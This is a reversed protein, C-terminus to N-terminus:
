QSILIKDPALPGGFMGRSNAPTQESSAAPRGRTTWELSQRLRAERAVRLSSVTSMMPPPSLAACTSAPVKERARSRAREVSLMSEGGDRGGEQGRERASARESMREQGGERTSARESMREHARERPPPCAPRRSRAHIMKHTHTYKKKTFFAVVPQM